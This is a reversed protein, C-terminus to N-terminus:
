GMEQSGKRVLYMSKSLWEGERLDNFTYVSSGRDWSKM